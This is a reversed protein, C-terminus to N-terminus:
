IDSAVRQNKWDREHAILYEESQRIDGVSTVEWILEPTSTKKGFYIKQGLTCFKEPLWATGVKEGDEIKAAYSCQRYYMEKNAM